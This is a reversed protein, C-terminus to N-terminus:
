ASRSKEFVFDPVESLLRAEQQGRKLITLSVQLHRGSQPNIGHAQTNHFPGKQLWQVFMTREYGTTSKWTWTQGPKVVPDVVTVRRIKSYTASKPGDALPGVVAPPPADRPATKLEVDLDKASASAPWFESDSADLETQIRWLTYPSVRDGNKAKNVAGQSLGTAKVLDVESMDREAMLRRIRAGLIEHLRTEEASHPYQRSM